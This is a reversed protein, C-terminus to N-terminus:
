LFLINLLIFTLLGSIFMVKIKYNSIKNKIFIYEKNRKISNTNINM